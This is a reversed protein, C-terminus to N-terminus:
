RLRIMRSKFSRPIEIESDADEGWLVDVQFGAEVLTGLRLSYCAWPSVIRCCGGSGPGLKPGARGGTQHGESTGLSLFM